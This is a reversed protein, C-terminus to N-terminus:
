GSALERDLRHLFRLIARPSPSAGGGSIVFGADVRTLGLEDLSITIRVRRPIRSVVGRVEAELTGRTPDREVVSWRRTAGAAAVAATWVRGFVETYTRTAQLESPAIDTM